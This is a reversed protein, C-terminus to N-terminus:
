QYCRSSPWEILKVAVLILNKWKKSIKIFKPTTILIGKFIIILVCGLIIVLFLYKLLFTFFWFFRKRRTIRYNKSDKEQMMSIKPFESLIKKIIFELIRAFTAGNRTTFIHFNSFNAQLSRFKQIWYVKM